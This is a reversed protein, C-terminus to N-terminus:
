PACCHFGACGNGPLGAGRQADFGDVEFAGLGAFHQDFDLSGANAVGIVVGEGAGIRFAEERGDEAMFAGTHNDVHARVDFGQTGAIVHNREVRRFAALALEAQRALGVQALLDAAGLAAAQHGVGGAAEAQIALGDQVVHAGGGERVVDHHGLDGQGLDAIVRGEVLDAVDATAHGSAHAGHQEGGLHFGTGVHHHEPEAADAEVHDLGGLHDAGVLDDTDVEVGAAFGHRALEAHGVEDIRVFDVVDDIV